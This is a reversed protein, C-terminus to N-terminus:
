FSYNLGLNFQQIKAEAEAGAVNIKNKGLNVYELRLGLNKDFQYNGGFGYLVKNKHGDANITVSANSPKVSFDLSNRSYGLRGFLSFENNVPVIGLVSASLSNARVKTSYTVSDITESFSASGLRRAQLEIAFNESLSYGLTAGFGTKREKDGDAKFQTSSIDGGVYWTKEAASAQAAIFALAALAIVKKM